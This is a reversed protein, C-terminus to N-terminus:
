SSKDEASREGLVADKDAADVSDQYPSVAVGGGRIAVLIIDEAPKRSESEDDDGDRKGLVADKDAADVSDQYPSVAVGGGRIAVLIIDEAPQRLGSETDDVSRNELDTDKNITADISRKLKGLIAARDAADVSDQYPSTTNAALVVTIIKGIPLDEVPGKGNEVSRRGLVAAQDAADVADQYPSTTNAALVVTIIKGIPLDEVPGKKTDLSSPSEVPAGLVAAISQLLLISTTFKM